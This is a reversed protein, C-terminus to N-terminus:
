ALGVFNRLWSNVALALDIANGEVDIIAADSQGLPVAIRLEVDGAPLGSVAIRQTQDYYSVRLEQPNEGYFVSMRHLVNNQIQFRTSTDPEANIDDCQGRILQTLAKWLDPAQQKVTNRDQVIRESIVRDEDAKRKAEAAESEQKSKLDAAFQKSLQSM